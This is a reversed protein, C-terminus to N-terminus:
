RATAETEDKWVINMTHRSMEYSLCADTQAQLNHFHGVYTHIQGCCGKGDNGGSAFIYSRDVVQRRDLHSFPSQKDDLGATIPWCAAVMQHFIISSWLEAISGCFRSRAFAVKELRLQMRTAIGLRLANAEMEIFLASLTSHLRYMPCIELFPMQSSIQRAIGLVPRAQDM